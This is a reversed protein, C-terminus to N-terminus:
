QDMEEAGPRMVKVFRWLVTETPCSALSLIGKTSGLVKSWPCKRRREWCPYPLWWAAQNECMSQWESNIGYVKIAHFKQILLADMPCTTRLAWLFHTFPAQPSFLLHEQRHAERTGLETSPAKWKTETEDLYWGLTSRTTLFVSVSLLWKRM